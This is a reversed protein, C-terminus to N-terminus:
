EGFRLGSKALADHHGVSLTWQKSTPRDCAVWRGPLMDAFQVAGPSILFTSMKRDASRYFLASASPARAELFAKEFADFIGSQKGPFTVDCKMWVESDDAM